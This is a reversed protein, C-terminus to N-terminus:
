SKATQECQCLNRDIGIILGIDLLNPHTDVTSYRYALSHTPIENRFDVTVKDATNELTFVGWRKLQGIKVRVHVKVM